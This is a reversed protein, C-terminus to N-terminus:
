HQVGTVTITGIDGAQGGTWVAILQENAVLTQSGGRSGFSGDYSQAKVNALDTTNKFVQIRPVPAKGAAPAGARTTNWLLADIEWTQPGVGGTPGLSATGNGSADFIVLAKRALDSM